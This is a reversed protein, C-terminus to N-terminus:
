CTRFFRVRFREELARRLAPAREHASASTPRSRRWARPVIVDHIDYHFIPVNKASSRHETSGSYRDLGEEIVQFASLRKLVEQLSKGRDRTFGRDSGEFFRFLKQECLGLHSNQDIFTDILAEPVRQGAM